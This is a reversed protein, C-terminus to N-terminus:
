DHMRKKYDNREKISHDFKAFYREVDNDYFGPPGLDAGRAGGAKEDEGDSAAAGDAGGKGKKNEAVTISM